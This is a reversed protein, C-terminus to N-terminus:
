TPLKTCTFMVMSEMSASLSLSPSLPPHRFRAMFRLCSPSPTLPQSCDLHDVLLSWISLGSLSSPSVITRAPPPKSRLPLFPLAFVCAQCLCLCVCACLRVFLLSSVNAFLSHLTYESLRHDSDHEQGYALFIPEREHDLNWKM